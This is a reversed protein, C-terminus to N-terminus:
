ASSTLFASGAEITGSKIIKCYIGRHKRILKPLKSSFVALHDCISCKQTLEIISDGIQLRDGIDLEHPDIDLLVNEGYSGGNLEIGADKAMDYSKKGIIMVTQDLKDGAFKDGEIGFGEKLVLKEVVPRPLGKSNIDASFVGLVKGMLKKSLRKEKGLWLNVFGLVEDKVYINQTLDHKTNSLIVIKAYKYNKLSEICNGDINYGINPKSKRSFYEDDLGICSLIPIDKKAGIDSNSIYYGSECNWALLIRAFFEDGKYIGAALAGESNGMLFIKNKDVWDFLSLKEINYEIEKQRIKHVKEYQEISSNANYFPRNCIELTNPSFFLCNTNEVIWKRYIEGKTFGASGNLYFVVPIKAKKSLIEDFDVDELKGYFATSKKSLTEPIGIFAKSFTKRM